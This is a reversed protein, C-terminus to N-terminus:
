TGTSWHPLQVDRVKTGDHRYGFNIGYANVLFDGGGETDYFAPIVEKFDSMNTM